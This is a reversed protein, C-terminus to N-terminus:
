ELLKRNFIREVETKDINLDALMKDYLTATAALADDINVRGVLKRNVYVVGPGRECKVDLKKEHHLDNLEHFASALRGTAREKKLQKDNKRSDWRLNIVAADGGPHYQPRDEGQATRKKLFFKASDANPFKIFVISGYMRIPIIETKIEADAEKVIKETAVRRTDKDSEPPFGLLIITRADDENRKISDEQHPPLTGRPADESSARHRKTPHEPDDSGRARGNLAQEITAIRRNIEESTKIDRDDNAQLRKNLADVQDSTHQLKAKTELDLKEFKSLIDNFAATLNAMTADTKRFNEDNKTQMERMQNLLLDALASNTMEGDTMQEPNSM